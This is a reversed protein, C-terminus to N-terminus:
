RPISLEQGPYLMDPNSVRDENALYLREWEEVSGYFRAAITQLTDGDRVTYTEGGQEPQYQPETPPTYGQVITADGEAGQQQGPQQGGTQQQQGGGMSSGMGPLGQNGAEMEPQTIAGEPPMEGGREMESEQSM